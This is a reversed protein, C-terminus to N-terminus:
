HQALSFAKCTYSHTIISNTLAWHTHVVLNVRKGWGSYMEGKGYVMVVREERYCLWCYTM